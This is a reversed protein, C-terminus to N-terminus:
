RTGYFARRQMNVIELANQFAVEAGKASQFAVRIHEGFEDRIPELEKELTSRRIELLGRDSCNVINLLHNFASCYDTMWKASFLLNESTFVLDRNVDLMTNHNMYHRKPKVDRFAYYNGNPRWSYDYGVLLIKEYLGFPMNPNIEDLGTWFVVQANAVNTSAPVLRAKNGMIELFIEETGIADRNVYFYVPGRWKRTWTVNGYPTSILSVGQTEEERPAWKQWLINCDALMVYNPKIGNDLLVKFGKDCCIIDIKDRYKKLDDISDELSAGLGVSVLIKGVGSARLEEPDRRNKHKSNEEAFPIWKSKGFQNFVATSQQKVAQYDLNM